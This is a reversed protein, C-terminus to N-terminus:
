TVSGITFIPLFQTPLCLSQRFNWKCGIKTTDFIWCLWSPPSAGFIKRSFIIFFLFFYNLTILGSMNKSKVLIGSRCPWRLSVAQKQLQSQYIFYRHLNYEYNLKDVKVWMHLCKSLARSMNQIFDFIASECRKLLLLKACFKKLNWSHTIFHWKPLKKSPVPIAPALFTIM